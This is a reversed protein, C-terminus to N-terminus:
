GSRATSRHHCHGKKLQDDVLALVRTAANRNIWGARKLAITALEAQTWLWLKLHAIM